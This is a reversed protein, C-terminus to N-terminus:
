KNSKPPSAKINGDRGREKTVKWGFEDELLRAISNLRGEIIKEDREKNTDAENREKLPVRPKLDVEDMLDDILDQKTGGKKLAEVYIHSNSGERFPNKPSGGSAKVKTKKATGKKVKGKKVKTKKDTKTSPGTSKKVKGKKTKSKKVKTKAVPEEEEEEEEDEEEETEEEEEEVGDEDEAADVAAQLEEVTMDQWDEIGLSKAKKRLEKTSVKTGTAM